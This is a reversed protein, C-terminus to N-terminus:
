CESSKAAYRLDYSRVFAVYKVVPQGVGDPYCLDGSSKGLLDEAFCRVLSFGDPADVRIDSLCGPQSM